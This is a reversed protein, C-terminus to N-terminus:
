LRKACSRLTEYARKEIKCFCRDVSIRNPQRCTLSLKPHGHLVTRIHKIQELDFM